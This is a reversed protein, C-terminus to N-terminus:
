KRELVKKKNLNDSYETCYVDDLDSNINMRIEIGNKLYTKFENSGNSNIVAHNSYMNSNVINDLMNFIRNYMEKYDRISASISFVCKTNINGRYINFTYKYCKKGYDYTNYIEFIFPKKNNYNNINNYNSILMLLKEYIDVTKIAKERQIEDKSKELTEIDNVRIVKKKFKNEIKEAIEKDEENRISLTLRVDNNYNVYYEKFFDSSATYSFNENNTIEDLFNYLTENDKKDYTVTMNFIEQPEHTGRKIKIDYSKKNNNYSEKRTIVFEFKKKNFYGVIGNYLSAEELLNKIINLKQVKKENELEFEM